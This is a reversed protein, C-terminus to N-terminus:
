KPMRLGKRGFEQLEKRNYGDLIKTIFVPLLFWLIPRLHPWGLGVNYVGARITNNKNKFWYRMTTCVLSLINHFVLIQDWCSLFFKFFKCHDYNDTLNKLTYKVVQFPKFIWTIMMTINFKRFINIEQWSGLLKSGIIINKTMSSM